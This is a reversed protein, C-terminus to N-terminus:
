KPLRWWQFCDAIYSFAKCAYIDDLLWSWFPKRGVTVPEGEKNSIEYGYPECVTTNEEALGEMRIAAQGEYDVRDRCIEMTVLNDVPKHPMFKGFSLEPYQEM